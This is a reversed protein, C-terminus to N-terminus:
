AVQVRNAELDVCVKIGLSKITVWIVDGRKEIVEASSGAFVGSEITVISGSCMGEEKDSKPCLYHRMADIEEQSIVVPKKQYRVVSKTFPNTNVLEFDLQEMKFFALGSIVVKKKTVLKKAKKEITKQYPVFSELGFQEFYAKAKLESKPWTYIAYWNMPTFKCISRNIDYHFSQIIITNCLITRLKNFINYKYFIIFL